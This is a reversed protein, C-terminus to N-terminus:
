AEVNMLDGYLCRFEDTYDDEEESLGVLITPEEESVKSLEKALSQIIQNNTVEIRQRPPSSSPTRAVFKEQTVPRVSKRTLTPAIPARSNKINRRENTYQSSRRKEVHEKEQRLDGEFQHTKDYTKNYKLLSNMRYSQERPPTWRSASVKWFWPNDYVIKIEKHSILKRRAAQADTNWFWEDFHIYVRKFSEGKENKHINIDIRSIKGLRLENFVHRIRDETINNFVRPICLSPQSKVLYHLDVTAESM